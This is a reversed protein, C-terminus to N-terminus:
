TARVGPLEPLPGSGFDERRIMRNLMTIFVITYVVFVMTDIWFTIAGNWAFPGSKMIWAPAVVVETLLNCINLYAFWKPFVRNQDILIAIMWVLTGILFIGMTGVFCMFGAEYLAHILEPSRDPRMAAVSLLIATVLMGPIASLSYLGIYSYTFARSVSMRRMSYGILGNAAATLGAVLFCIGFGILLGDHNENFWQLVRPTDWWPKPPPMVRTLGVFVVGFLNYFFVMTYWAFWLEVKPDHRWHWALRGAFHAPRAPASDLPAVSSM